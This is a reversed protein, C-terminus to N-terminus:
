AIGNSLHSSRMSSSHWRCSLSRSGQLLSNIKETKLRSEESSQRSFISSIYVESQPSVTKTTVILEKIQESVEQESLKDRNLDNAGIHFMSFHSVRDGIVNTFMLSPFTCRRRVSLGPPKFSNSRKLSENAVSTASLTVKDDRSSSTVMTKIYTKREIDFRAPDLYKLTSDGILVNEFTLTREARYKVTSSMPASEHNANVNALSRSMRGDYNGNDVLTHNNNNQAMGYHCTSSNSSLDVSLAIRTTVM